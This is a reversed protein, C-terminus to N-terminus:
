TRESTTLTLLRAIISSNQESEANQLHCTKQEYLDELAAHARRQDGLIDEAKSLNRLASALVAEFEPPPLLSPPNELKDNLEVCLHYYLVAVAGAEQAEKCQQRIRDCATLWVTVEDQSRLLNDVQEVAADRAAEIRELESKSMLLHDGLEEADARLNEFHKQEEDIIEDSEEVLDGLLEDVVEQLGSSFEGAHHLRADLEPHNDRYRGLARAIDARNKELISLEDETRRIQKTREDEGDKLERLARRCAAYRKDIPALVPESDSYMEEEYQEKM